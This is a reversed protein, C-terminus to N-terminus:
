EIPKFAPNANLVDGTVADVFLTSHLNGFVYQPNCKAPGLPTRLICHQSHPKVYNAQMLREFAKPYTIKVDGKYMACDEIWTGEVEQVKTEDGVHLILVVYAMGSTSDIENVVQFVNTVSAVSGDCDEDDLYEDLLIDCEYWTFDEGYTQEMYAFDDSIATAVVDNMNQKERKCGNCSTAAFLVVSAMVFLIYKKM